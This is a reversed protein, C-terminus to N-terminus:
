APQRVGLVDAVDALDLAHVDVDDVVDGGVVDRDHGRSRGVRAAVGVVHVGVRGGALNGCRQAGVLDHEQGVDGAPELVRRVLLGSIEEARTSSTSLTRPSISPPM